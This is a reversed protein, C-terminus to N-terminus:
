HRVEASVLYNAAWTSVLCGGMFMVAVGGSGAWGAMGGALAALGLLALGGTIAAMTNRPWGSDCNFITSAPVMFLGFGLGTFLWVPSGLILGALASLLGAALCLGVLNAAKTQDPALLYRGYKNLRLVLNFVPVGLWTFVAFLVYVVVVPLVYPALEPSMRGVGRLLRFAVYLGIIVGWRATPSLKAMWLFYGLLVRYAPNGAKLAELMGSRAFDLNPNLRLAERFHDKAERVRGQELMTWGHNAHTLPNDPERRLADAIVGEAQDKRGLKVLAMARLNACQTDEADHQLGMEASALAALWQSQAFELAARKAWLLSVDPALAIAEQIAQMAEGNRNRASYVVSLVYFCFWSDPSLRVAQQAEQTAEAYRQTHALCLALICHAGPHDPSDALALRAEKEAEDFRSQELLLQGRALHDIHTM